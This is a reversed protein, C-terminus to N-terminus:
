APPPPRACARAASPRRPARFAHLGGPRPFAEAPRGLRRGPDGVAQDREDVEPEREEDGADDDREDALVRELRQPEEDEAGHTVRFRDAVREVVGGVEDEGPEGDGDGEVAAEEVDAALALGIQAAEARPKDPKIQAMPRRGHHNRERDGAGHGEAGEPGEDGAPQLRPAAAVDDDRRDHEVEQGRRQHGVQQDFDEDLRPLLGGLAAFELCAGPEGEDVIDERGETPIDAARREVQADDDGRDAEHEEPEEDPARAPAVLDTGDPVVLRRRDVATNRRRARDHQRHRDGAAKGAEDADVLDDADVVPKQELERRAVAEDADRHCQHAAVVRHTDQERRQEEAHEILAAGLDGEVHGVHGAVHHDDKLPRTIRKEPASSCM